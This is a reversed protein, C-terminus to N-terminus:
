CEELEGEDNDIPLVVGLHNAGEVQACEEVGPVFVVRYFEGRHGAPAFELVAVVLHESDRSRM